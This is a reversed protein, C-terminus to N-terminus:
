CYRYAPFGMATDSVSPLRDEQTTCAGLMKIIDFDIEVKKGMAAEIRAEAEPLGFYVFKTVLAREEAYFEREFLAHLEKKNFIGSGGGSLVANYAIGGEVFSLTKSQPVSGLPQTFFDIKHVKAAIDDRVADDETSTEFARM